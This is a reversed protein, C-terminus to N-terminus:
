DDELAELIEALEDYDKYGAKEEISGKLSIGAYNKEEATSIAIEETLGFGKLIPIEANSSEICADIEKFFAPSECEILLYKVQYSNISELMDKLESLSNAFFRFIVEISENALSQTISLDDTQVIPKDFQKIIGLIESSSLTACELVVNDVAVWGMIEKATEISISDPQSPDLNFGLLNVGYGACYRADSLNSINGVKVVTKLNMDSISILSDILKIKNM